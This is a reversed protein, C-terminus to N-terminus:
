INLTVVVNTDITKLRGADVVMAANFCQNGWCCAFVKARGASFRVVRHNTYGRPCAPNYCQATVKADEINTIELPFYDFRESQTAVTGFLEPPAMGIVVPSPKNRVRQEEALRQENKRKRSKEREIVQEYSDTLFDDDSARLNLLPPTELRDAM